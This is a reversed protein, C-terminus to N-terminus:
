LEYWVNTVKANSLPSHDAELQPRKLGSLPPQIPGLVLRYTKCFLFMKKGEISDFRLDHLVFSALQVSQATQQRVNCLQGTTWRCSVLYYLILTYRLGKFLSILRLQICFSM